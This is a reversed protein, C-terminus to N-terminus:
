RRMLRGSQLRTLETHTYMGLPMGLSELKFIYKSYVDESSSCSSTHKKLKRQGSGNNMYLGNDLDISTLTPPSEKELLPPEEGSLLEFLIGGLPFIRSMTTGVDSGDGLCSTITVSDVESEGDSSTVLRVMVNQTAISALPILNTMSMQSGNTQLGDDSDVLCEVLKVAVHLTMKIYLMVVMSLSGM